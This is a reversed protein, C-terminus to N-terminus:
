MWSAKQQSIMGDEMSAQTLSDKQAQICIYVLAQTGAKLTRSGKPAVRIASGERVPFEEGDVHFMGNGSVVIYVEENMKHSHTFPMFAGPPLSNASIECGTLDLPAGLMLRGKAGDDEKEGLVAFGGIEFVSYNKGQQTM